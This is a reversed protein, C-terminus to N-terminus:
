VILSEGETQWASHWFVLLGSGATKGDDLGRGGTQLVCVCVCVTHACLCMSDYLFVPPCM